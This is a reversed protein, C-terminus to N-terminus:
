TTPWACTRRACPRPTPGGHPPSSRCAAPGPSWPPCPSSTTGCGPPAPPPTSFAGAERRGGGGRGRDGAGLYAVGGERAAERRVLGELPGRGLVLLRAEPLDRRVLRFADLVRDVRKTAALPSVFAAVPEAVPVAPPSFLRTDVGPHVVRCRDAPLGLA